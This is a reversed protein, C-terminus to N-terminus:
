ENFTRIIEDCNECFHVIIHKEITSINTRPKEEKGNEYSEADAELYAYGSMLLTQTGCKDCYHAM